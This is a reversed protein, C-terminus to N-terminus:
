GTKKAKKTKKQYRRRFKNEGMGDLQEFFHVWVEQDLTLNGLNFFVEDLGLFMKRLGAKQLYQLVDKWLKVGSTIVRSGLRADGQIEEDSVNKLRDFDVNEWSRLKGKFQLIRKQMNSKLRRERNIIDKELREQTKAVRKGNRVYTMPVGIRKAVKKLHNARRKLWNINNNNNNNNNSM